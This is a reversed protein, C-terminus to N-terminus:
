PGTAWILKPTGCHIYSGAQLRDETVCTWFIAQLCAGVIPGFRSDSKPLLGELCSGKTRDAYYEARKAFEHVRNPDEYFDDRVIIFRKYLIKNM